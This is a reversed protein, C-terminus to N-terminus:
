PTQSHDISACGYLEFHGSGATYNQVFEDFRVIIDNAYNDIYSNEEDITVDQVGEVQQVADILRTKNLTGGYVIGDLYARVANEVVPTHTADRACGNEDLVMPDRWISLQLTVTDSPYSYVFAQTGAFKVAAVYARLAELESSDLTEYGEKHVKVMIGNDIETVACHAIIHRSPDDDNYYAAMDNLASGYQFQMVKNWYWSITGPLAAAIRDEVEARFRDHLWEVTRAAMAVIYIILNLLNVTSVQEDWPRNPDLGFADTLTSNALVADTMEKKIQETTRM